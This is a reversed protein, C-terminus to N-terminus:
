LRSRFEHFAHIFADRAHDMDTVHQHWAADSAAELAQWKAQAARSHVGLRALDAIYRQQADPRAHTVKTEFSHLQDDLEDLELKVTDVYTERTTM